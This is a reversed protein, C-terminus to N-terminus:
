THTMTDIVVSTDALGPDWISTDEDTIYMDGGYMSAYVEKNTPGCPIHEVTEYTIM